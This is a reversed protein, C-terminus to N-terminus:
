LCVCMCGEDCTGRVKVGECVLVNCVPAQPEGCSREQGGGRGWILVLDLQAATVRSSGPYVRVCAAVGEESM